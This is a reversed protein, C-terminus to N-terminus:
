FQQAGPCQACVSGLKQQLQRRGLINQACEGIGGPVGVGEALNRMRWLFLGGGGSQRCDGEFRHAFQIGRDDAEAAREFQLRTGFATRQSQALEEFPLGQM